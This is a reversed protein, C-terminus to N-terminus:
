YRSSCSMENMYFNPQTLIEGQDAGSGINVHIKTARKQTDICQRAQHVDVDDFDYLMM